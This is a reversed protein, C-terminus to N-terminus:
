SALRVEVADPPLASWSPLRRSASRVRAALMDSLVAESVLGRDFAALLASIEKFM